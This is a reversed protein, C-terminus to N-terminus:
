KMMLFSRFEQSVEFADAAVQVFVANEEDVKEPPALAALGELFFRFM